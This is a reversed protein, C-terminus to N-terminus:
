AAPETALLRRVLEVDSLSFGGSVVMVLAYLALVFAVAVTGELSLLAVLAWAVAVGALPRVAEVICVRIFPATTPLFAWCLFGVLNAVVTALAAGTAGFPPILLLNAAINVALTLVSVLLLLRQQHQVIFLNIYVAGTYAFFMGWALVALPMSSDAYQAGFVVGVFQQRMVTLVLAVPLIVASLYKFSLRYTERFREPASAQSAALMPFVTLMLAEPLISLAETVKVAAAYRGVQAAGGLKFLLIQDIRMALMFLIVFLGVESADRLLMQLLARQPRLIPRARPITIAMLLGLTLAGNLLAAYYVAHVPLSWYVCLGALALFSLGSPLTVAYAYKMEYRSQLYSRLMLEVTLPLGFAAIVICYHVEEPVQMLWAVVYAAPIAVACLCLKLIIANGLVLGSRGPARALERTVVREMGLDVFFGFFFMYVGVFSYIGFGDQGLGRALVLTTLFGLAKQATTGALAVISNSVLKRSM